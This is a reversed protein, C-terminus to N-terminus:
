KKKQLLEIPVFKEPKKMSNNELEEKHELIWDNHAKSMFSFVLENISFNSSVQKM